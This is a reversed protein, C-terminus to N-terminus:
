HSEEIPRLEALGLNRAYPAPVGLCSDRERCQRCTSAKVWDKSFDEYGTESPQVEPRRPMSDRFSPSLVCAPLSAHTSSRLPSVRLGSHVASQAASELAPALETYPVLLPPAEPRHEPCILVSFHLEVRDDCPIQEPLGRVFEPLHDFNLRSVVCNVVLQHGASLLSRIGNLAPRLQRRTGTCQDYVAEDLAHLSVFFVLREDAALSKADLRSAFAVANTQVQVRSLDPVELAGHVEAVFGRRLTPEGGTLTVVAGPYVQAAAEACAVISRESPEPQPLPASCFPCAQNCRSTTRVLIETTREDGLQSREITSFPFLAAFRAEASTNDAFYGCSEDLEDPLHSELRRVARLLAQMWRQGIPSLDHQGEYGLVFRRTSAWGRTGATRPRVTAVLERAGGGGLVARLRGSGAVLEQVPAGSRGLSQRLAILWQPSHEPIM